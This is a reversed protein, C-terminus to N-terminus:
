VSAEALRLVAAPSDSIFGEGGEHAWILFFSRHDPRALSRRLDDGIRYFTETGFRCLCSEAFARENPSSAKLRKWLETSDAIRWAAMFGLADAIRRQCIELRNIFSSAVRGSEKLVQTMLPLLPPQTTELYFGAAFHKMGRSSDVGDICFQESLRGHRQKITSRGGGCSRIVIERPNVLLDGAARFECTDTYNGACLLAAEALRVRLLWAGPRDDNLEFAKAWLNGLIKETLLFPPGMLELEANIAAIVKSSTLNTEQPLPNGAAVGAAPLREWARDDLVHCRADHEIAVSEGGEKSNRFPGVMGM